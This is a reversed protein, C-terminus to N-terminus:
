GPKDKWKIYCMGQLCDVRFLQENSNLPVKSSSEIHGRLALGEMDMNEDLAWSAKRIAVSISPTRSGSQLAEPHYALYRVVRPRCKYCLSRDAKSARESCISCSAGGAEDATWKAFDEDSLDEVTSARRWPSPGLSQPAYYPKLLVYDVFSCFTCGKAAASFLSAVDITWVYETKGNGTRFDLDSTLIQCLNESVDACTPCSPEM